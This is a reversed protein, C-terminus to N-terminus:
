QGARFPGNFLPVSAPIETKSLDYRGEVLTTGWSILM